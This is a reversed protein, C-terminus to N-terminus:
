KAYDAVLKGSFRGRVSTNIASSTTEIWFISKEGIVFPESPVMQVEEEIQTDITVRFVEFTSDVVESYVYGIFTVEPNGGGSSKIANLFMWTALFTHDEPVYFILQQTTGQGAPMTAMTNGSSSATATITGVNSDSSGSQYITMRNVGWFYNTTTVPTTGDTSLVETVLGRDSASAGGVGFLILTTIGTGGTDDEISDSVINLTEGTALKQNFAAGFAAVVETTDVDENYGFKNWTAVGPVRGLAIQDNYTLGIQGGAAASSM